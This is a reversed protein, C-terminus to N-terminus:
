SPEEADRRARGARWDAVGRGADHIDVGEQIYNTLHFHSDNFQYASRTSRPEAELTSTLSGAAILCGVFRVGRSLRSM